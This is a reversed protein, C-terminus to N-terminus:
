FVSYHGVTKTLSSIGFSCIVCPGRSERLLHCIRRVLAMASICHRTYKWEKDDQEQACKNYKRIHLLKYEKSSMIRAYFDSLTPRNVDRLRTGQRRLIRGKPRLYM